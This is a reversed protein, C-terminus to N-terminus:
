DIWANYIKLFLTDKKKIFGFFNISPVTLPIECVEALCEIYNCKLKAM